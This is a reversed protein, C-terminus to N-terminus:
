PKEAITRLLAAHSGLDSGSQDDDKHARAGGGGVRGGDGVRAGSAVACGVVRRGDDIRRGVDRGIAREISRNRVCGRAGAGVAARREVRGVVCRDDEADKSSRAVAVRSV